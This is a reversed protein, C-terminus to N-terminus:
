DYPHKEENQIVYITITMDCELQNSKSGISKISLSDIRVQQPRDQLKGMLAVINGYNGVVRLTARNATIYSSAKSQDNMLASNPQLVNLSHIICNAGKVM